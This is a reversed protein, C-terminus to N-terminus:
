AASPPRVTSIAMRVRSWGPMPIPAMTPLPLRHCSSFTGNTTLQFSHRRREHRGTYTTGYFNGDLVQVLGARPGAGNTSNFSVLNTLTGLSTMQFLTGGAGPGGSFTTGYFNGDKGQILVAKPFAGNTQNFSVLNTFIVAAQVHVAAFGSMLVIPIASFTKTIKM